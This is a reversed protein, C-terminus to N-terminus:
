RANYGSWKTTFKITGHPRWEAIKKQQKKHRFYNLIDISTKM